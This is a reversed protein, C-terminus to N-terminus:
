LYFLLYRNNQGLLYYYLIKYIIIFKPLMKYKCKSILLILEIFQLNDTINFLIIDYNNIIKRVNQIVNYNDIVYKITKYNNTGYFLCKDYHDFGYLMRTEEVMSIATTNANLKLLHDMIKYVHIKHYKTSCIIAHIAIGTISYCYTSYDNTIEFKNIDRFMDIFKIIISVPQNMLLYVFKKDICHKSINLNNFKSLTNDLEKTTYKTDYDIGIYKSINM